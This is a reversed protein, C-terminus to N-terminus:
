DKRNGWDTIICSICSDSTVQQLPPAASRLGADAEEGGGEGGEGREGWRGEIREVGERNQHSKSLSQLLGWCDQM